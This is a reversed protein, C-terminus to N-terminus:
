PSAEAGGGQSAAFLRNFEETMKDLKAAAERKEEALTEKEKNLNELAVTREELQASLTSVQAVNAARADRTALAEERFKALDVDSQAESKALLIANIEAPVPRKPKWELTKGDALQGLKTELDRLGKDIEVGKDSGQILLDDMARMGALVLDVRAKVEPPLGEGGGLGGVSTAVEAQKLLLTEVSEEFAKTIQGLRVLEGRASELQAKLQALDEPSGVGVPELLEADEPALLVLGKASPVPAETPAPAAVVPAPPSPPPVETPEPEYLAARKQRRWLLLFAAAAVFFLPGDGYVLIKGWLSSTLTKPPAPLNLEPLLYRVPYGDSTRGVIQVMVRGSSGAELPEVDGVFGGSADAELKSEIAKQGKVKKAMNAALATYRPCVEAATVRLQHQTADYAASFCPGLVRYAVRREREVQPGAITVVVAHEGVVENEVEAVFLGKEKPDAQLEIERNHGSPDKIRAVVKVEKLRAYAVVREGHELLEAEFHVPDQVTAPTPGVRVVFQLDSEGVIAVAGHVGEPQEINWQGAQPRTLRVVDHSPASTWEVGDRPHDASVEGEDPAVLKNHDDPHNKSLVMHASGISEDITVEGDEVPLSEADGALVFMETFAKHLESPSPIYRHLGGSKVAVKELLERDAEATFAITYVPAARSRFQEALPGSIRTVEGPVQEARAPGLDVQGDTILLVRDKRGAPTEDGLVHAAAELAAGINTTPGTFRLSELARAVEDRNVRRGLPIMVKAKEDFAVLAVEDGPRALEFYLRAAADSLRGPDNKKMSGSNDFVIVTRTAAPSASAVNAWLSILILLASRAV